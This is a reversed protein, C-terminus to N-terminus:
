GVKENKMLAYSGHKFSPPIETEQPSSDTSTSMANSSSVNVLRSQFIEHQGPPAGAGPLLVVPQHSDQPGGSGPQMPYAMPVDGDLAHIVYCDAPYREEEPQECCPKLLCTCIAAWIGILFTAIGIILMVPLIVVKIHYYKNYSEVDDYYIESDKIHYYKNYSEVDDYYIESDKSIILSIGISYFLIIIGGFVASTISFGMFVGAFCNRTYNRDRGSGPIGLAGTICVQLVLFL